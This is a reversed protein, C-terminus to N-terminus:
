ENPSSNDNIAANIQAMDITIVEPTGNREVTVSMSGSQDLGSLLQASQQPDTMPVGNIDIVLDGPRLGLESFVQRQRGPYVRFGKLQNDVFHPQPRLVQSMAGAIAATRNQNQAPQRNATVTRRSNTTARRPGRASGTLESLEALVLEELRGGQRELVVRRPEVSYLTAGSIVTDGITYVQDKGAQFIIAVARDADSDWITGKLTLALTTEPLAGIELVPGGAGGAVVDSDPADYRGFLHRSTVQEISAAQAPSGDISGAIGTTATAQEDQPVFSWGLSVLQWAIAIVLLLSVWPPLTKGARDLLQVADGNGFDGIKSVLQNM